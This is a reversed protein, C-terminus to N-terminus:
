KTPNVLKGQRHRIYKATMSANAHGLQDKAAEIGKKEDMDTAAKARLDRFQYARIEDELEPYAECAADRARDFAGRFSFNIFKPGTVGRARIRDVLTALEGTISIRLKKRTKNQRIFIWEDGVDEPLLKFVDAPRQAILYAMDSADQLPPESFEWVIRVIEDRVYIDRGEEKNGRVGQCPNPKNTYGKTRAYNWIHSLLAKERNARVETPLRFELYERVNVPEIKDLPAPPSDFFKLLWALEKLNDSQTRPAKTPIVDRKYLEAVYSFTILSPTEISVLESWKRVAMVYDSGLPIEKRPKGGTDLYYHTLRGRPRARMGKPLNQNITPRRGM